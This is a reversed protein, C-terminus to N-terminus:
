AQSDPQAGAAQRGPPSFRIVGTPCVAACKGCGTCKAPDIVAHNERIEIAQAPCEKVCRRCAICGGACAKRTDAGRERSSCLVVAPQSAPRLAIIQKPCAAVCAGCATCRTRDVRAVGDIVRVADFQCASACDGFGLCGYACKGPGGYLMAAARCSAVGRYDFKRGTVDATGRCRVVACQPTKEQAALGMIGAVTQAAASGGPACLDPPAEGKAVANAYGECGSYGCGGCNAGPLAELIKQAREDRRVELFHSALTLIVGFLLGIAGVSIIAYIAEM